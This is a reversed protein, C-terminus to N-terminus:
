FFSEECPVQFACQYPEKSRELKRGLSFLGGKHVDSQHPVESDLQPHSVSGQWRETSKDQYGSLTERSKMTGFGSLKCFAM